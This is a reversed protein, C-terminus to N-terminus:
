ERQVFCAIVMFVYMFVEPSNNKHWAFRVKLHAHQVSYIIHMTKKDHRHHSFTIQYPLWETFYQPILCHDGTCNDPKCPVARDRYILATSGVAPRSSRHVFGSSISLCVPATAGCAGNLCPVAQVHPVSTLCWLHVCPFSILTMASARILEDCYMLVDCKM